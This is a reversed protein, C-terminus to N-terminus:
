LVELVPILIEQALLKANLTLSALRRKETIQELARLLGPSELRRAELIQELLERRDEHTWVHSKGALTAQLLDMLISELLDLGLHTQIQSKALHDVLRIWEAAPNSVLNILQNRLEWADEGLYVLARSLSGNAARSAVRARGSDFEYGKHDKLIEYITEASLPPLRIEMCRSLITPLLRSSDSATLIFMWNKPPEELVKLISNAAAVTMRDADAIVVIRFPEESPGIGLKPKLERFADIKHTGIRAEEDSSEPEFWFLDLWQGRSARICSPCQGCPSKGSKSPGAPPADGFLGMSDEDQENSSNAFISEDCFLTHILHAVLSRKGVGELGTVLISPHIVGTKEYHDILPTLKPEQSRIFAPSLPLSVKVLPVEAGEPGDCM